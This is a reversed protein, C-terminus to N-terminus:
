KGGMAERKWLRVVNPHIEFRAAIEPLTVDEKQAVLVVMTKFEASHLERNRNTMRKGRGKYTPFGGYGVTRFFPVVETRRPLDACVHQPVSKSMPPPLDSDPGPSAVYNCTRFIMIMSKHPDFYESIIM